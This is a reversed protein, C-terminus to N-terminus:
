KREVLLNLGTTAATGTITNENKASFAFYAYTGGTVTFMVVLVLLILYRIKKRENIEENTSLRKVKLSRGGGSNVKVYSVM